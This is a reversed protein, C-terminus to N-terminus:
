LGLLVTRENLPQVHRSSAGLAERLDAIQAPSATIPTRLVNWRVGESCPPTTLSGAYSFYARDAPLLAALDLDVHAANAEGQQAPMHAILTKLAENYAGEQVFVGLVALQGLSNRHVFHIELPYARRDLTHEAPSHFHMQAFTFADQGITLMLAAEPAPAFQLTHGNNFFTGATAIYRPALDPVEAVPAASQLNIPSQEVGTGCVGGTTLHAWARQAGYTWHASAHASASAAAHAAHADPSPTAAHAEGHGDGSAAHEEGHGTPAHGEEAAHEKSGCSALVLSIAILSAKRLM